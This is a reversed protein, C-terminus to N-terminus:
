QYGNRQLWQEAQSLRTFARSKHPKRDRDKIVQGSIAKVIFQEKGNKQVANFYVAQGEENYLKM